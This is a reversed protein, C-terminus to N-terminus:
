LRALEARFWEVLEKRHHYIRVRYLNNREAVTGETPRPPKCPRPRLPPPARDGLLRMAGEYAEEMEQAELRRREASGVHARAGGRVRKTSPPAQTADEGARKRPRPTREPAVFVAALPPPSTGREATYLERLLSSFGFM